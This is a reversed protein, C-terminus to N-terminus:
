TLRFRGAGGEFPPAPRRAEAQAIQPKVGRASRELPKRPALDHATPKVATAKVVHRALHVIRNRTRSVPVVLKKLKDPHGFSYGLVTTGAPTAAQPPTIPAFDVPNGGGSLSAAAVTNPGVISPIPIVRDGTPGFTTVKSSGASFTAYFKAQVPDFDTTDTRGDGDYDASVPIGQGNPVGYQYVKSGGQFLPNSYLEYFYAPVPDFVAIDTKGDGDFDAAIPLDGGNPVGFQRNFAGSGDTYVVAFSAAIQDYVALDTKGDGNYDGAVPLEAHNKTGFTPRPSSAAAPTSSTSGPTSRTTSPWTPRATATSTAPSRSTRTTRCASRRVDEDRGLLLRRLLHGLGPRLRGPRDQRRRRLRGLRAPGPREPQRPRLGELRGVLVPHLLDGHHRRLRGPREQRRRRLRGLDQRRHDAHGGASGGVNGAADSTRVTLNNIGLKLGYISQLTFSGDSATAVASLLKGTSDYLAAVGNPDSKGVLRPSRVNTVFDGKIGSDDAPLM